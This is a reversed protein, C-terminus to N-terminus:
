WVYIRGFNSVNHSTDLSSILRGMLEPSSAFLLLGVVAILGIPIALKWVRRLYWLLIAGLVLALIIWINRSQNAILSLAMIPLSIGGIIRLCTDIHNDLLCIFATPLALLLLGSLALGPGKFGLGRNLTGMDDAGIGTIHQYIDVISDCDIIIFVTVLLLELIRRNKICILISGFILSRYLFIYFM